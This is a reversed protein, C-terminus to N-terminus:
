TYRATILNNNHKSDIKNRGTNFASNVEDYSIKIYKNNTNVNIYKILTM